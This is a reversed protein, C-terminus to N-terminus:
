RIKLYAMFIIILGLCSFGFVKQMLREVKLEGLRTLKTKQTEIEDKLGKVKQQLQGIDQRTKNELRETQQKLQGFQHEKLFEFFSIQKETLELSYFSDVTQIRCRDHKYNESILHLSHCDINKSRRDLFYFIKSLLLFANTKDFVINFKPSFFEIGNKNFVIDSVEFKEHEVIKYNSHQMNEIPYLDGTVRLLDLSKDNHTAQGVVHGDIADDNYLGLEMSTKIRLRASDDTHYDDSAVIMSTFFVLVGCLIMKNSMGFLRYNLFYFFDFIYKSIIDKKELFEIM